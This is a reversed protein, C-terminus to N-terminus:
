AATPAAAARFAGFANVLQEKHAKKQHLAALQSVLEKERAAIEEPKMEAADDVGQAKNWMDHFFGSQLRDKLEGTEPDEVKRTVVPVALLEDVARRSLSNQGGAEVVAGHAFYYIIDSDKLTELRHAIQVITFGLRAQEAAIATAVRQQTKADLAATAEDLILLAPRKILARAAM